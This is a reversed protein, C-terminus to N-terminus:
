KHKSSVKSRSSKDLPRAPAVPNSLFNQKCFTWHQPPCDYAVQDMSLMLSCSIQLNKWQLYLISSSPLIIVLLDNILKVCFQSLKIWISTRECLKQKNKAICLTYTTFTNYLLLIRTFNMKITTVLSCTCSCFFLSPACQLIINIWWKIVEKKKM